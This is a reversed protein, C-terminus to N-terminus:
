HYLLGKTDDWTGQLISQNKLAEPSVRIGMSSLELANDLAYDWVMIDGNL